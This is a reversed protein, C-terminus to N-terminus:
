RWFFFVESGYLWPPISGCTVHYDDRVGRVAALIAAPDDERHYVCCAINPKHVRITNAAGRLAYRESGEVDLKIFDVRDRWLAHVIEDVTRAVCEIASESYELVSCRIGVGALRERGSREWAAAEVLLVKGSSLEQRFTRRFSELSLPDPEVAVVCEAGAELAIRTFVGFSAGLDIVTDGEHVRCERDFYWHPSTPVQESLVQALDSEQEESCIWFYGRATQVQRWDTM